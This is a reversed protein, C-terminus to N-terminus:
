AESRPWFISWVWYAFAALGAYLSGNGLVISGSALVVALTSDSLATVVGVLVFPPCVAMALRYSAGQTMTSPYSRWLFILLLAVVMGVVVAVSIAIVLGQDRSETTHALDKM